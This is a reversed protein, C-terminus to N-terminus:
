ADEKGGFGIEAFHRGYLEDIHMVCEHGDPDIAKFYPGSIRSVLRFGAIAIPSANRKIRGAVYNSIDDLTLRKSLATRAIGCHSVGYARAFEGLSKFKRGKHDTVPKARIKRAEEESARKFADEISLGERVLRTIRHREIGFAECASMVSDYTKGDLTVPRRRKVKRGNPKAAGYAGDTLATRIADKITLGERIYYQFKSYSINLDHCLALRSDYAKGNWRIERKANMARVDKVAQAFDMGAKLRDIVTHYCVNEAECGAAISPYRTGDPGTVGIAKCSGKRGNEKIEIMTETFSMGQRKARQRVTAYAIGEKACAERVTAYVTGDPM